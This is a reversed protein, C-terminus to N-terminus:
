GVGAAARIQELTKPGIGAISLLADDSADDLDDVTVYGAQILLGQTGADLELGAVLMSPWENHIESEGVPQVATVTVPTVPEGLIARTCIVEVLDALKTAQLARRVRPDYHGTSKLAAALDTITEDGMAEAVEQAAKVIRSQSVALRRKIESEIM